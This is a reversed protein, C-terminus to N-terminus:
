EYPIVRKAEIKFPDGIILNLGPTFLEVSDILKIEAYHDNKYVFEIKMDGILESPIEFDANGKNNEQFLNIIDSTKNELNSKAYIIRGFDIGLFILFIFIPLILVFEVLAQGKKNLIM